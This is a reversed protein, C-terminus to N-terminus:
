MKGMQQTELRAHAQSQVDCALVRRRHSAISHSHYVRCRINLRMSMIETVTVEKKLGALALHKEANGPMHARLQLCARHRLWAGM